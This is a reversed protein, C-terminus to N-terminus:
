PLTSLDEGEVWVNADPDVKFIFKLWSSGNPVIIYFQPYNSAATGTAPPKIAVGQIYTDLSTLTVASSATLATDNAAKKLWGQVAASYKVVPRTATASATLKLGNHNSDSNNLYVKAYNIDSTNAISTVSGTVAGCTFTPNATPVAIYTAGSANAGAINTGSPLNSTAYQSSTGYGATAVTPAFTVSSNIADTKVVLYFGSSPATPDPNGINGTINNTGTTTGKTIVPTVKSASLTGSLVIKNVTANVSAGNPKTNRGGKTSSIYGATIVTPQSVNASGSVNFKGSTSNYAYNLSTISATGSEVTGTPFDVTTSSAYYGASATATGNAADTTLSGNGISGRVEEGDVWASYGTLIQPSEYKNTSSNLVKTVATQGSSVTSAGTFTGTVPFLTTQGNSINIAQNYRINSAIYTNSKSLQSIIINSTVYKGATNITKTTTTAYYTDGAMSEISGVLKNGDEDYAVYNKLMQGSAAVLPYQTPDFNKIIKALSIKVNDTYGKNIYLYGSSDIEPAVDTNSSYKLNSIDTYSQGSTAANSFTVADVSGATIYGDGWQAIGSTFTTGSVSAPIYTVATTDIIGLPSSASGQPVWGGTKCYVGNGSKDFTATPIALYRTKSGAYININNNAPEISDQNLIIVNSQAPMYGATTNVTVATRGAVMKAGSESSSGVLKVYYGSPQSNQINIGTTNQANLAINVTPTYSYSNNNGVTVSPTGGNATITSTTIPFYQTSGTKSELSGTPFWGATKVRSNGSGQFAVYYGSSPETTTSSQIVSAINIGANTGDNSIKTVSANEGEAEGTAIPLYYISSQSAITSVSPANIESNDSLYGDTHTKNLNITTVPATASMAVFYQTNQPDPAVLDASGSGVNTLGNVTASSEVTVTPATAVTSSGTITVSAPPLVGVQHPGPISQDEARTNSALWGGHTTSLLGSVSLNTAEFVYNNNTDKNNKPTLVSSSTLQDVDLSVGDAARIGATVVINRDMLSGATLLEVSQSIIPSVPPNASSDGGLIIPLQWKQNAINMQPHTPM